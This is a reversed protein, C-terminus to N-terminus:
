LWLGSITGFLEEQYCQMHPKIGTMITPEAFNGVDVCVLPRAKIM